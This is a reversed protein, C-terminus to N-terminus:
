KKDIWVWLRWMLYGWWLFLAVHMWLPISSTYADDNMIKEFGPIDAYYYAGIGFDYGEVLGKGKAAIIISCIIVTVAVIATVTSIIKNRKM